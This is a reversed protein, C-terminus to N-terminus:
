YSKFYILIFLRGDEDARQWGADAESSPQEFVRVRRATGITGSALLRESSLLQGGGAM